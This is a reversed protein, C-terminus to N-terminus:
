VKEKLVGLVVAVLLVVAGVVSTLVSETIGGFVSVMTGISLGAGILYAKWKDGTPEKEVVEGILMALGASAGVISLMWATEFNLIFGVAVFGVVLILGVIAVVNLKM